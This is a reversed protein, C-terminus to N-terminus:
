LAIKEFEQSLEEEEIKSTDASSVEQVKDPSVPLKTPVTQLQSLEIRKLEEEIDEEDDETPKEGALLQGLEDTTVKQEQVEDMLEAVRDVGGITKNLERLIGVGAELAITMQQQGTATDIQDLTIQLKELMELAQGQSQEAYHKSRLAYKALVRNKKALAKKARDTCQDIQESLGDVRQSMKWITDRLNAVAEDRPTVEELNKSTDVKSKYIVIQENMVLRKEHELYAMICDLDVHSLKVKESVTHEFFKRTFVSRSYGLCIEDLIQDIKAAWFEVAAMSVYKYNPDVTSPSWVFRSILYGIWGTQLQKKYRSLPTYDGRRVLEDVAVQLAIPKGYESDYLANKLEEDVTICIKDPFLDHDLFENFASKWAVINAEYGITNSEKLSGFNSYLSLKRRGQFQVNSDVLKKFKTSDGM